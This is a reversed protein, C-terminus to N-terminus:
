DVIAGESPATVDVEVSDARDAIENMVDELVNRMDITQSDEAKRFLAFLYKNAKAAEQM